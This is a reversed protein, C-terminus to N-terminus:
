KNELFLLDQYGSLIDNGSWVGPYKKIIKFGQGSFYDLVFQEDYGVAVTSRNKDLYYDPGESLLDFNLTSKGRSILERTKKNLLFFSCWLRGGKKLLRGIEQIYSQADESNLHTFVSNLFVFDFEKDEFPLRVDKVDGRGTSNYYENYIDYHIFKFDPYLQSINENCWAVGDNVIDVGIYSGTKDLYQTLPISVRGIGSGIDLVRHSQKLGGEILSRMTNVGNLAFQGEDQGTFIRHEPPHPMYKNKLIFEILNEIDM